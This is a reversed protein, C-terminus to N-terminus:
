QAAEVGLPRHREHLSSMGAGVYLKGNNDAFAKNLTGAGVRTKSWCITAPARPAGGIPGISVAGPDAGTGGSGADM